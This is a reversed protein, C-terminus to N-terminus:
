NLFRMRCLGKGTTAMGGLQLTLAESAYDKLILDAEIKPQAYSHTAAVLGCLITESPMSEEYWLAGKAVTGTQPNLKIRATVPLGTTCLFKFVDDDVMTLRSSAVSEAWDEDFVSKTILQRWKRWDEGGDVASLDLDELLIADDVRNESDAAALASESAVAPIEAPLELGVHSMDQGFRRLALPCTVYAFVGAFARVPLLLIRADTIMLASAHAEADATGFDPGFAATLNKKGNGMHSFYDRMVGKVTSGPILPFGTAAERATPLDIDGVGQGTGCHINSLAHIFYLKKQAYQKEM